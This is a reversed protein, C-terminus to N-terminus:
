DGYISESYRAQVRSRYGVDVLTNLVGGEGECHRVFDVVGIGSEVAPVAASSISDNDRVHSTHVCGASQWSGPLGEMGLKSRLRVLKGTWTWIGDRAFGLGWDDDM